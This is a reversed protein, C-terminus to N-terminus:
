TPRALTQRASGPDALANSEALVSPAEAAGIRQFIEHAQLLLAQAPAPKGAAIACRALGALACAEDWPSVVARALDLAQQHCRRAEAPEGIALHVTGRENLSQAEGARHAIEHYLVQAQKLDSAAGPYDGTQRRVIGLCMIANAQGLRDGIDRYLALALELDSAAGPYDGTRQRVVGLSTLANAEGLRDGTDRCLDLAQELHSAAGPHDGTQQRVDGLTILANAQGLRDGLNRYLTLAQELDSAASPYDAAVMRVIGLRTLAHAQGLQDGLNRYLTLAQELDSAASPWDGTLRRVDALYTLANAEGLQDGLNRCFDLAQELNSAAGPYDGTMQRVIGLYTLANAEGLQDGLNRYLTLARGLDSAASRCDGTLKRADALCTLANAEGLRDGLHRAARSAALHRTIADTWPGDRRLLEALAATLATVRAHQRARSANDLCALLNDRDARAWALAQGADELAPGSLPTSPAAPQTGPTTQRALLAQARAATHQYYDLLRRLSQDRGRDAAGHDRAYRRLLDHMGCRRYSTETLLGEGHLTNMQGAAEAPSIGALAAAAYSDCTTGPHLGLLCFFRQLAPDLHRYSVEFAAAITKNEASLTLVGERTEAALDALTWSPHCALLRALLSIALPLRGALAAVEEVGGPDAAARPALRTLMRQAQGAPLADLRVPVVQGPLDGLHRRSTILVLCDGGGPLLPTVQSSSAANDLVLLARQGAIKDRWMGARGDLDAPVFRPDAGAATLLGALADEPRVPEQGPTHAHLDIFLQRDPFREALLHAAHVALATKGVGPMGDIAQVTTVGNNVARAVAATIMSLEHDRGTFAAVDRPLTFRTGTGRALALETLAQYVALELGEATTFGVTVLGAGQVRERFGDVAGRDADAPAAANEDLLFLMRPLGAAGAENFELETYSIAAGPVISGYRFGLVALYVECRRVRERCYEAPQGDRAGFYGMDVPAMGARAVGDLVARVFSRGEPFAAMDSAHSLFVQGTLVPGGTTRGSSFM